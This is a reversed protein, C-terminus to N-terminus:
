KKTVSCLPVWFKVRACESLKVGLMGDPSAFKVGMWGVGGGSIM